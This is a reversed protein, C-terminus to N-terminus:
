MSPYRFCKRYTNPQPGTHIWPISTQLMASAALAMEPVSGPFPFPRSSPHVGGMKTSAGTGGDM